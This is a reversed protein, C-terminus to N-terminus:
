ISDVLVLKPNSYDLSRAQAVLGQLTADFDIKEPFKDLTRHGGTIAKQRMEFGNIGFHRLMNRAVGMPYGRQRCGDQSYRVQEWIYPNGEGTVAFFSLCREVEGSDHEYQSIQFLPAGDGTAAPSVFKTALELWTKKIHADERKPDPFEGQAFMFVRDQNANPIEITGTTFSNYGEFGLEEPSILKVVEASMIFHMKVFLLCNDLCFPDYCPSIKHNQSQFM